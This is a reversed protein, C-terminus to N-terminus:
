DIGAFQEYKTTPTFNSLMNTIIKCVQKFFYCYTINGPHSESREVRWLINPDELDILYHHIIDSRLILSTAHITHELNSNCTTIAASSELQVIEEETVPIQTALALKSALFTNYEKTDVTFEVFLNHKDQLYKQRKAQHEPEM